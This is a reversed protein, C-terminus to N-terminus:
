RHAKERSKGSNDSGQPLNLSVKIMVRNIRRLFDTYYYSLLKPFESYITQPQIASRKGGTQPKFFPFYLVATALSAPKRIHCVGQPHM